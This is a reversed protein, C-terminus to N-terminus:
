TARVTVLFRDVELKLRSSESSLSQASSLVHSAATGTEGAGRNVGTINNAVEATGAAAQDVNRAIEQTTASQEEVAAAITSAIQSIGTMTGGIEKIAAVSEATAAQMSAIQGSIEETARATQAALVKVEQAVVAFGKGNEGARAAEITANLALLNTQEAVNSILKVVDGIRGVAQSLKGIRADTQEVQRVAAAAITSSEQAQRGIESVSSAMEETAQAVSQVNASAEESTSAVMTSLQQTTEATKTLTGAEVELQKASTSVTEIVHGVAAQFEDALKHMEAKRQQAAAHAAEERERTEQEAKEVAVIKFTEVAQAMEGIEDKRGLGPLVVALNGRALEVMANTMAVLPGAIRAASVLSLVAFGALSAIGIFVIWLQVSARTENGLGVVHERIKSIESRPAAACAVAVSVTGSTIPGCLSVYGVDGSMLDVGGTTQVFSRDTPLAPVAAAFGAATVVAEQQYVSFASGTLDHLQRLPEDHRNLMKGVIFTAIPDGFDDVVLGTSTAALAGVGKVGLQSLGLSRLLEEGFATLATVNRVADKAGSQQVLAAAAKGAEWSGYLRTVAAVDIEAPFSNIMKGDGTFILVVDFNGAEAVEKLMGRIRNESGAGRDELLRRIDARQRLSDGRFGIDRKIGDVTFRLLDLDGALRKTERDLIVSAISDSQQTVALSLRWSVLTGIALVTVAAAGIFSLLIKSRLNSM